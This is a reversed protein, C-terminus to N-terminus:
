NSALVKRLLTGYVEDLKRDSTGTKDSFPHIADPSFIQFNTINGDADVIYKEYNTGYKANFDKLYNASNPVFDYTVGSYNWVDLLPYGYHHAVSDQMQCVVKGARINVESKNEYFGGIVIRMSPKRTLIQKIIYNFAGIYTTRDLSNWDIGAAVDKAIQSGDNYGHDFVIVQVQDLYPLIVREYSMDYYSELTAASVYDKYRVRKEEITESLDRGDRGTGLVGNKLCIGSSGISNNICKYGLSKCSNVPYTCGGPISTGIWLITNIEPHKVTVKSTATYLHDESEIKIETVGPSIGIITCSSDPNIIITAIGSDSLKWNFKKKRVVDDSFVAKLVLSDGIFVNYESELFSVKGTDIHINDEHTCSIIVLSITLLVLLIKKM